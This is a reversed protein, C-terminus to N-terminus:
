RSARSTARPSIPSAARPTFHLGATPAAIAGPTRAFVTQYRERDDPSPGEPGSIYPPLPVEGVRRLADELDGAAHLRLTRFGDNERAGWM